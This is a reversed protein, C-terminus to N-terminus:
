SLRNLRVAFRVISYSWVIQVSLYNIHMQKARCNRADADRVHM